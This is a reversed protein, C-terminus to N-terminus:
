FHFGFFEIEEGYIDRILREENQGILNMWDEQSKRSNANAPKSLHPFSTQARSRLFNEMGNELRDFRLFRDIVVKGDISYSNWTDHQPHILGGFSHGAKIAKLYTSLSPKRWSSKSLRWRYDSVVREFTNRVIAVKELADWKPGLTDRLESVPGHKLGFFGARSAGKESAREVLAHSDCTAPSAFWNSRSDLDQSVFIAKLINENPLIGLKLATSWAGLTIDESGLWGYSNVKFYTGAAKRAHVFLYDHTPSFIM